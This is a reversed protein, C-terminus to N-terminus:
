SPAYWKRAQGLFPHERKLDDPVDLDWRLGMSMVLRVSRCLRRAQAYHAEFSGPGFAMRLDIEAPWSLFNTGQRHFDPAIICQANDGEKEHVALFDLDDPSLYPLDTPLYAFRLKHVNREHVFQTLATTLAENLGGPASEVITGLGADRALQLAQADSSIVIAEFGAHSGAVASLTHQYLKRALRERQTSDLVGDLRSKAQAFPKCPIFLLQRMRDTGSM